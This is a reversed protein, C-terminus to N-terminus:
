RKAIRKDRQALPLRDILIGLQVLSKSFAEASMGFKSQHDVINKYNAVALDIAFPRSTSIKQAKRPDRETGYTPLQTQPQRINIRRHDYHTLLRSMGKEHPKRDQSTRKDQVAGSTLRLVTMSLDAQNGATDPLNLKWYHGMQGDPNLWLRGGGAMLLRLFCWTEPDVFRPSRSQNSKEDVIVVAVMFRDDSPDIEITAKKISPENLGKLLLQPDTKQGALTQRLWTQCNEFGEISIPPYINRSARSIRMDM